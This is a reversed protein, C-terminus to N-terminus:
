PSGTAEGGIDSAFAYAPFPGSVRLATGAATAAARLARRYAGASGRPVLHYISVVGKRREVREARVWRRVAPRVVDFAPVARARAGASARSLLFATGSSAESPGDAEVARPLEVRVGGGTEVLRVTM